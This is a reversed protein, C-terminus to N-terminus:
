RTIPSAHEHSNPIKGSRVILTIAAALWWLAQVGAFATVADPLTLRLLFTVGLAAFAAALLLALYGFLRPLIPCSVLVIGLPLFLSPAAVIFYLHQV